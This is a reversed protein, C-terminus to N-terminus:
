VKKILIGYPRLENDNGNVIWINPNKQSARIKDPKVRIMFGVKYNEGKADITETNEELLKPDSFCYVGVGVKEGSHRIDVDNEYIQEMNKTIGTIGCYAVCWEGKKHLHSIWENSRDNFGHDINIGYKTWGLPPLYNEGGRKEGIAWQNKKNDEQPCLMSKCLKIKPMILEKEVSELKKLDEDEGFAKVLEDKVINKNFNSKITILVTFKNKVRRFNSILLEDEKLNYIKMIINKVKENFNCREIPNNVLYKIKNEGLDFFLLYKSKLIYSNCLFQLINKHYDKLNESRPDDKKEITVSVGIKELYKGLIGLIFFPEKQLKLCEDITILKKPTIVISTNYDLMKELVYDYVKIIKHEKEDSIKMNDIKNTLDEVEKHTFFPHEFYEDWSIREEPKYRLLKNILDDLAKDECDEKKKVTYFKEIQKTSKPYQFPYSNFYLQYIMVGISFLDSKDNYYDDEGLLIEPAMYRPTGLLTSAKGNDLERSIGYDAIKSIYKTKSSDVYKIMINEPKIDRHLIGNKHMYKFPKNLGEMIHLIESSSLKGKEKLLKNLDKDCFELVIIYDKEEEFFYYLKVSNEYESMKKLIDIERKLAKKMYDGLEPDTNNDIKEKSIKKVAYVNGQNELKYVLGFQGKGLVQLNKEEKLQKKIEEM